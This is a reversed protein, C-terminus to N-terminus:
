SLNRKRDEGAGRPPSESRIDFYHVDDVRGSKRSFRVPRVSGFRKTESGAPVPRPFSGFRISGHWSFDPFRLGFRTSGPFIIKRVSVFRVSSTNLLIRFRFSDFRVSEKRSINNIRVVEIAGVAVAPPGRYM